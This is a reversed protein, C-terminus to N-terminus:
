QDADSGATSAKTPEIGHDVLMKQLRLGYIDGSLSCSNPWGITFSRVKQKTDNPGREFTATIGVRAVKVMSRPVGATAADIKAHLLRKPAGKDLKVTIHHPESGLLRATM